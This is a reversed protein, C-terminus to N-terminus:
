STKRTRTAAFIIAASLLAVAALIANRTDKGMEFEAKPPKIPFEFRKAPDTMAEILQNLSIGAGLHQTKGLCACDKLSNVRRQKRKTRSHM